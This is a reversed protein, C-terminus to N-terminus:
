VKQYWQKILFVQLNFNGNMWEILAKSDGCISIDSIGIYAAFQLLGYLSLLEAKSNTGQGGGLSLSFYHDKNLNVVMGLGYSSNNSAGDFYGM